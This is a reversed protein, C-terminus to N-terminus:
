KKITVTFNKPTLNGNKLEGYFLEIKNSNRKVSDFIYEPAIATKIEEIGHKYEFKKNLDVNYFILKERNESLYILYDEIKETEHNYILEPLDKYITGNTKNILVFNCSGNAPCGYRFLLYKDFEKYFQYDLRYHYGIFDFGTSFLVLKNKNELTLWLSDSNIQYYLLAGNSLYTTDTNVNESALISDSTINSNQAITDSKTQIKLVSEESKKENCGSINCIALVLLLLQGGSIAIKLKRITM